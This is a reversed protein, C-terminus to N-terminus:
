ASVVTESAVAGLRALYFGELREALSGWDLRTEAAVRGARGAAALREPAALAARITGALAEAEPRAVWGAGTERVLAPADGVDTVVVARGASLYDNIKGPWRGRNGLTDPMPVLALDLAGLWLVLQEFPVYGSRVVAGDRLLARAPREGTEGVLVLRAEPHTRRVRELAAGALDLEGRTARGLYGILPASAPLRLAARAEGRAVPSIRLDCGNWMLLTGHVPIGLRSARERLAASAVTTGAARTRFAEEFWTEVPGIATRVLWGSRERIRGGRGWWDAWDIFLPAQTRRQVALAPLIVAPRCDFAHVLDFSVGRLALMRRLVNSPDWGTRGPGWFLDPAELVRVGADSRWSGRLRATRSTTVLTVAHGRAALARALQSCRQYTGTGVVNHNLFLMRM